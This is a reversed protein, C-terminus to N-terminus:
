IHVLAIVAAGNQKFEELVEHTEEGATEEAESGKKSLLICSEMENENNEKDTSNIANEGGTQKLLVELKNTLTETPAVEGAVCGLVLVLTLACLIHTTNVLFAILGLPQGSLGMRLHFTGKVEIIGTSDARSLDACSVGLPGSCEEFDIVFEGLTASTIKGAGKDKKCKIELANLTRLKGEGSVASFEVPNAVTGLPLFERAASAVSTAVASFVFMAAIATGLMKMRQM